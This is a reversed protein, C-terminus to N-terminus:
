FLAPIAFLGDHGCAIWIEQGVRAAFEPHLGTEWRGQMRPAAPDAIDLLEVRGTCRNLLLLEHGLAFAEGDLAAGPVPIPTCDPLQALQAPPRLAYYRHAYIAILDDGAGCFGDSFPCTDRVLRATEVPGDDTLRWLSPRAIASVCVQDAAATRAIPRHYALGVARPTGVCRLVGDTVTLEGIASDGLLVAVRDGCVALERAARSADPQVRSRLRLGGGDPEYCAVGDRGEAVLLYGGFACVDYAMPVPVRGGSLSQLGGDGMACWCAGGLQAFSHAQGAVNGVPRLGPVTRRPPVPDFDAGTQTLYPRCLPQAALNLLSVGDEMTGVCLRGGAAAAGLVAGAYPQVTPPAPHPNIRQPLRYHGTIRPATLDTLELVFLGGRSDAYYATQGDTFVRWTDPGGFLPPTKVEALMEPQEPETLDIVTIGHGGGYGDALMEATVYPYNQYKRRNRLRTAHHGTAALCITRGGRDFACVGDAFGDVAIRSLETAPHTTRDFIRVQRNMWDGILILRGHLWVSQAEGCRFSELFVPHAPDRVDHLECGMHRNTVALLGDAACIGTALEMSDIHAAIAPHAPDRVDCVYVGDPRSAVYAWGGSVCVQRSEGLGHLVAIQEPQPAIRWLELMGRAACALVDPDTDLAACDTWGCTPLSEIASIPAGFPPPEPYIMNAGITGNLISM